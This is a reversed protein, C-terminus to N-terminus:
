HGYPNDNSLGDRHSTVLLYPMSPCEQCPLYNWYKGCASKIPSLTSSLNTRSHTWHTSFFHNNSHYHSFPCHVVKWFSNLYIVQLYTSRDWKLYFHIAAQAKKLFLYWSHFLGITYRVINYQHMMGIFGFIRLYTFYLDVILLPHQLSFADLRLILSLYQIISKPKLILKVHIQNRLRLHM